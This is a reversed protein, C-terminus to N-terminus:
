ATNIMLKQFSWCIPIAMRGVVPVLLARGAGVSAFGFGAVASLVTWFASVIGSGFTSAVASGVWSIFETGWVSFLASDRGVTECYREGYGATHAKKRKTQIRLDIDKSNSASELHSVVKM